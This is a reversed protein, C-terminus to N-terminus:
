IYSRCYRIESFPVPFPMNHDEADCLLPIYDGVAYHNEPEVSTYVESEVIEGKGPKRFKYTIKFLPRYHYCYYCVMKNVVSFQVDLNEEVYQQDIPEYQIDTIEAITKQGSILMDKISHVLLNKGDRSGVDPMKIILPKEKNKDNEIRKWELYLFYREAGFAVLAGLCLICFIVISVIMGTANIFIAPLMFMLAWLGALILFTKFFVRSTMASEYLKSKPADLSVIMKGDTQLSLDSEDYVRCFENYVSSDRPTMEDLANWLDMNGTQNYFDVKTMKDGLKNTYKKNVKYVVNSQNDKIIRNLRNKIEEYDTLRDNVDPNLMERLISTVAESKEPMFPEFILRFDKQPIDAPSKGTFMYVIVGALAYIDSAPVPKGMLQEPPMYGFTGAVTSGGSQIQPNAVAGFDILNATYKGTSINLQLLINSPKIDRHIVQPNHKHLKELIAIMQLAIDLIDEKKFRHGSKLMEALSRGEIYEQVIYSAPPNEELKDYADYLKAVGNIDLEALVSAERKFLDYEKWNKVSEINLKKIAVMKRDFRRMALWVEGQSGHGLKKFYKFIRKQRLQEEVDAENNTKISDEQNTTEQKDNHPNQIEQKMTNNLTNYRDRYVQYKDLRMEMRKNHCFQKDGRVAAKNKM